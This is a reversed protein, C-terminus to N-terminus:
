GAVVGQLLGTPAMVREEVVGLLFQEEAVRKTTDFRGENRNWDIVSANARVYRLGGPGGGGTRTSPM